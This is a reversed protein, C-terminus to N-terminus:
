PKDKDQFFDFFKKFDANFVQNKFKKILVNDM